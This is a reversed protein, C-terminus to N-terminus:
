MSMDKNLVFSCFSHGGFRFFNSKEISFGKFLFKYEESTRIYNGRDLKCLIKSLLRNHDIIPELIIIKGNKKLVRFAEKFCNLGTQDDIHHLLSSIILMDFSEEKFDLKSADMHLFKGKPANQSAIQIYKKSIDIGYYENIDMNIIVKAANGTSCGLELIKKNKVNLYDKFENIVIVEYNNLKQQLKFIYPNELILEIIKKFPSLIIISLMQKFINKKM